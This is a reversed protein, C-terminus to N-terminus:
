VLFGAARPLNLWDRIFPAVLPLLFALLVIGGLLMLLRTSLVGLEERIQEMEKVVRDEYRHQQNETWYEPHVHDTSRRQPAAMVDGVLLASHVAGGSGAGRLHHLAVDPDASQGNASEAAM